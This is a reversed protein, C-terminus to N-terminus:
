RQLDFVTLHYTYLIHSIDPTGVPSTLNVRDSACNTDRMNADSLTDMNNQAHRTHEGTMKGM